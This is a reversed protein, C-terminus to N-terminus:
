NKQKSDTILFVISTVGYILSSLYESKTFSSGSFFAMGLSLIKYLYKYKIKM